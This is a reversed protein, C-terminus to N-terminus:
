GRDRPSPSTYLLCSVGITKINISPISYNKWTYPNLLLRLGSFGKCPTIGLLATDRTFHYAPLIDKLHHVGFDYMSIFVWFYAFQDAYLVPAVLM